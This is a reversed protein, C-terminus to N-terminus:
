AALTSTVKVTDSAGIPDAYAAPSPAADVESVTLAM